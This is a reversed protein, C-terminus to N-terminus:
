TEMLVEIRLHHLRELVIDHGFQFDQPDRASAVKGARIGAVRRHGQHEVALAPARIQEEPQRPM